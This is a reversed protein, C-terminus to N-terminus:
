KGLYHLQFLIMKKRSKFTSQNVSISHNIVSNSTTENKSWSSLELEFVAIELNREIVCVLYRFAYM